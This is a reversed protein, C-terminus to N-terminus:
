VMGGGVGLLGLIGFIVFLATLFYWVEKLDKVKYARYGSWGGLLFTGFLNSLRHGSITYPFFRNFIEAMFAVVCMAVFLRLGCGASSKLIVIYDDNYENRNEEMRAEKDDQENM